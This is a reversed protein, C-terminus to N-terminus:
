HIGRGFSLHSTDRREIDLVDPDDFAEPDRNSAGIISIVVDRARIRKGGIEVDELAM